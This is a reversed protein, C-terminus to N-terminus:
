GVHSYRLLKRLDLLLDRLKVSLENAKPMPYSLVLNGMPDSIYLSHQALPYRQLFAANPLQTITELMSHDTSQRTVHLVQVRGQDKGLAQQLNALYHLLQDCYDACQQDDVFLIKWHHQQLLQQNQPSPKDDLWNFVTQSTNLLQGRMVRDADAFWGGYYACLALVFPAIFVACLSWLPLYRRGTM